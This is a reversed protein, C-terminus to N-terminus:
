EGVSLERVVCLAEFLKRADEPFDPNTDFRVYPHAPSEIGVYAVGAEQDVYCELEISGDGEMYGTLHIDM